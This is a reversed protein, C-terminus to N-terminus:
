FRHRWVRGHIAPRSRDRRRHRTGPAPPPGSSSRTGTTSGTSTPRGFWDPCARPEDRRRPMPTPRVLCSSRACPGARRSRIRQGHREGTPSCASRTPTPRAHNPTSAPTCVVKVVPVSAGYTLAVAMQLTRINPRSTPNPTPPSPRPVTGAQPLFARRRGRRAARAIRGRGGAHLDASRERSRACRRAEDCGARSSCPLVASRTM